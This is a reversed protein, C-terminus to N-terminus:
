QPDHLVAESGVQVENMKVKAIADEQLFKSWVKAFDLKVRIEQTNLKLIEQQIKMLKIGEPTFTKLPKGAKQAAEAEAVKADLTKILGAYKALESELGKICEDSMVSEDTDKQQCLKKVTDASSVTPEGASAGISGTALFVLVFVSSITNLKKMINGRKLPKLFYRVGM